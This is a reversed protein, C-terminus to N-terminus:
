PRAGCWSRARSAPRPTPARSPRRHAGRLRAVARRGDDRHARLRRRAQQRHGHRGRDARLRHPHARVAARRPRAPHARGPHRGRRHRRRAPELHRADHPRSPRAALPLDDAARAAGHHARARRDRARRGRRVGRAPLDHRRAHSVRPMGAKYGFIHFFPNAILYRDGTRLDAWDCWDLYARLTQGHTMVVGKPSGTTGSTFM